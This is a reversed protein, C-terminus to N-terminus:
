FEEYFQSAVKATDTKIFEVEEDTLRKQWARLVEKADRAQYRTSKGEEPNRASTSELVYRQISPGFELDLHQYIKAFGDMPDAAVEEHKVFLWDPYQERYELIVHHLINWLLTARQLFSTEEHQACMAVVDDQFPALVGQMLNKQRQLNEFDFDWGAAKLSGVFGLPNRTMCIVQFGYEEYLWGASMLAIPDKVLIRPQMIAEQVLHKTYRAPTKWDLGAARCADKAFKAPSAHLLGSFTSAIEDQQKSSRFHAYWTDLELGVIRNPVRVHFPEQVYRVKAHKAITRGIWTTGSRHSGTVLIPRKAPM